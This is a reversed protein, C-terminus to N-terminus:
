KNKNIYKKTFAPAEALLSAIVAKLCQIPYPM